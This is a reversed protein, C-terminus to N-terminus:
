VSETQLLLFCNHPCDTFVTLMVQSWSPGLMNCPNHPDRDPKPGHLGFLNQRCCCSDATFCSHACSLVHIQHRLHRVHLQNDSRFVLSIFCVCTSIHYNWHGSAYIQHTPIAPLGTIYSFYQQPTTYNCLLQHHLGQSNSSVATSFSLLLLLLLFATFLLVIHLLLLLLLVLLLLLPLPAYCLQRVFPSLLSESTASLPKESTQLKAAAAGGAPGRRM